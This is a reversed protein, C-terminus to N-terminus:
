FLVTVGLGFSFASFKVDEDENEVTAEADALFTEGQLGIRVLFWDAMLYAVGAEGSIGFTGEDVDVSSSDLIYYNILLGIYPTFESGTPLWAKAGIGLRVLDLDDKNDKLDLYKVALRIDMFNNVGYFLSVQPTWTKDDYSESGVDWDASHWAFDLEMGTLGGSMVDEYTTEVTIQSGVGPAQSSVPRRGLEASYAHIAILSLGLILATFRPRRM